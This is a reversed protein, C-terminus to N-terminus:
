RMNTVYVGPMDVVRVAPAGNNDEEARQAADRVVSGFSGFAVYLLLLLAVGYPGWTAGLSTTQPSAAVMAIVVVSARDLVGGFGSWDRRVRYWTWDLTPKVALKDDLCDTPLGLRHWSKVWPDRLRAKWGKDHRGSDLLREVAKAVAVVLLFAPLCALRFATRTLYFYGALWGADTVFRVPSTTDVPIDYGLFHYAVLM